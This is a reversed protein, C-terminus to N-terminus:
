TKRRKRSVPEAEGRLIKYADNIRKNISSKSIPNEFMKEMKRDSISFYHRGIVLIADFPELKLLPRLVELEKLKPNNQKKWEQLEEDFSEGDSVAFDLGDKGHDLVVAAGNSGPKIRSSRYIKLEIAEQDQDSFGQSNCWVEFDIFGTKYLEKFERARTEIEKPTLL